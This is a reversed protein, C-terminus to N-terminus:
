ELRFDFLENDDITIASDNTTCCKVTIFFLGFQSAQHCVGIISIAGAAIRKEACDFSFCFFLAELSQENEGRVGRM